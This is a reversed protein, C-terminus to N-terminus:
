MWRDALLESSKTQCGPQALFRKGVRGPDTDAGDAVEFAALPRARMQFRDAQQRAREAERGILASAQDLQRV